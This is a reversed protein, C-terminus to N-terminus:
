GLLGRLGDAAERDDLRERAHVRRGRGEAAGRARAGRGAVPAQRARLLDRRAQYHDAHNRGRRADLLIMWTSGRSVAKTENLKSCFVVEPSGSEVGVGHRLGELEPVEADVVLVGRVHSM